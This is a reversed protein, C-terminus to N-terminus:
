IKKYSANEHKRTFEWRKYSIAFSLRIRSEQWPASNELIKKPMLLNRSVQIAKQLMGVWNTRLSSSKKASLALIFSRSKRSVKQRKM